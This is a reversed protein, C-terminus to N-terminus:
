EENTNNGPEGSHDKEVYDLCPIRGFEDRLIRFCTEESTVNDFIKPISDLCSPPGTSAPLGYRTPSAPGSIIIGSCDPVTM